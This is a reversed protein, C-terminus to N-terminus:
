LKLAEKFAKFVFEPSSNHLLLILDGGYADIIHKYKKIEDIIETKNMKIHSNLTADMVILPHEIIDYPKREKFNWPRFPYSTGCRFGAYRSYGLSYENKFGAKQLLDFSIEVDFRLFHARVSDVKINLKKELLEKESLINDLSSMSDYGYHLGIEGGNELILEATKSFDQDAFWGSDYISKEAVPIFFVPKETTFESIQILEEFTNYPDKSNILIKMCFDRFNQYFMKLSHRKLIDGVLKKFINFNSFKRYDDIDSTLTIKNEHDKMEVDPDLEIIFSRLLIAYENVIPRGIFNEKVALSIKGPFRGHEDKEPVAIEEWRTIMFFVSSIIDIGCHIHDESISIREDGFMIPLEAIEACNLMKLKVPINEPKIYDIEVRAFFDDSLTLIKGNPFEFIYNNYEGTLILYEIGLIEKLVFNIVYSKEPVFKDSIKVILPKM